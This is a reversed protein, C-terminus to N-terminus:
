PQKKGNFSYKIGSAMTLTWSLTKSDYDYNIIYKAHEDEFKTPKGCKTIKKCKEISFEQM